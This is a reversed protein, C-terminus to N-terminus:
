RASRRSRRRSSPTIGMIISNILRFPSVALLMSFAAAVPPEGEQKRIKLFMPLVVTWMILMHLIVLAHHFAFRTGSFFVYNAPHLAFYDMVSGAFLGGLAAILGIISWHVAMAMTRGREPALSSALSIQCLGVGGYLAGAFFNV